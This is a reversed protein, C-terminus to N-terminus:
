PIAQVAKELASLREESAPTSNAVDSVAPRKELAQLRHELAATNDALRSTTGQLGIQPLAWESGALALVGGIIGAALHSFFGGRKKVIIKEVPPKSAASPAAPSASLKNTAKPTPTEMKTEAKVQSENSAGTATYASPPAPRPTSNQDINPPTAGRGANAAFASSKDGIPTVKIETAKLDLTAYPRKVPPTEGVFVEPKNPDNTNPM